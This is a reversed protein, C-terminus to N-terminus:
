DSELHLNIVTGSTSPTACPEDDFAIDGDLRPQGDISLERFNFLDKDMLHSPVVTSLASFISDVRGPFKKDWERMLGKIQKRQLNEQSGCLDCPIIPFQKVEAYRETDAEKVYAMPRIVIHKGDDSQLKAPMGKLKGGFFMNLFFTELIDDRHHGLAIKNAGLEDAVRYLIGRRLRSCLSCTTKGEPILRKVISYTDQNEIHYAVGLKELYAPLIDAPFNPQKQDLNVAIIDFNIPARQRLTMLVDLLAYSDKGGSLCVMVRDGDEIMNFDGIAQGVQRCLRKHLKNNEYTIKEQSKGTVGVDVPASVTENSAQM